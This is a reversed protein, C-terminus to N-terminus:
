HCVTSWSHHFVNGVNPHILLLSFLACPWWCFVVSKFCVSRIDGFMLWRFLRLCLRVMYCSSVLAASTGGTRRSDVRTELDRFSQIHLTTIRSSLCNLPFLHLLKITTQLSAELPGAFLFLPFAIVFRGIGQRDSCAVDIKVDRPLFYPRLCVSCAFLIVRGLCSPAGDLRCLGSLFM